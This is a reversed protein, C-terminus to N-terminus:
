LHAGLSFWRHLFDRVCVTVCVMLAILGDPVTRQVAVGAAAPWMTRESPLRMTSLAVRALSPVTVVVRVASEVAVPPL